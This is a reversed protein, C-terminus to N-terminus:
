RNQLREVASQQDPAFYVQRGQNSEYIFDRLAKSEYVSFDGFIAVVFGYNTFKQLIEGALGTRLQFFDETITAKDLVAKDCGHHYRVTAMLDLADQVEGIVVGSGEVRAIDTGEVKTIRAEM